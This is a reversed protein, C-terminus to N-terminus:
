PVIINFLCVSNFSVTEFFLSFSFISWNRAWSRQIVRYPQYHELPFSISPAVINLPFWYQLPFSKLPSCKMLHFWLTRPHTHNCGCCSMCQRLVVHVAAVRCASGCCSMCQRLVVHVAAVVCEHPLHSQPRLMVCEAAVVCRAANYITEFIDINLKSTHWTRWPV